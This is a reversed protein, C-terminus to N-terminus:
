TIKALIILGITLLTGAVVLPRMDEGDPGDPPAGEYYATITKVEGEALTINRVPNTSGNEWEVFDSPDISVTYPVDPNIQYQAPTYGSVAEDLSFHKGTPQSLIKLTPLAVFWSFYPRDVWFYGWGDATIRIQSIKSWDFGPDETWGTGLGVDYEKPEFAGGPATGFQKYAQRGGSDYLDIWCVGTFYSGNLVGLKLYITIKPDTKNTLDLPSNLQFVMSALNWSDGGEFRISAQGFQKYVIDRYVAGNFIPSFWIGEPTVLNEGWSNPDVPYTVIPM